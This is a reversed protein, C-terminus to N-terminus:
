EAREIEVASVKPNGARHVLNIELLGDMVAVAQEHKEPAAFGAALPEYGELFTMGEAIVDFRRSGRITHRVEAFHLTVRYSGPPLPLRYGPRGAEEPPFWRETRYLPADPRGQIEVPLSAPRGCTFFRDRSWAIGEPSEHDEGGSNIRIPEGARLRELLWRVDGACGEAEPRPLDALLEAPSRALEVFSIALWLDWAERAEVGGALAGRLREAAAAPEGAARLSEALRLLIPVCAADEALAAELKAAAERHRGARELLRGELYLTRLAADDGAAIARFDELAAADEAAGSDRDDLFLDICAVSPLDPLAARCATEMQRRLFGPADPLRLAEDLTRAALSAEGSELQSDALVSLIGADQRRSKEAALMSTELARATDRRGEGHLLTLALTALIRADDTGQELARELAGGLDRLAGGTGAPREERRLLSLLKRHAGAHRSWAVLADCYKRLAEDLRGAEELAAAMAYHSYRSAPNAALDKEFCAIAEDIRGEEQLLFGLSLHAETRSPDVELARLFVKRAEDRQGLRELSLGLINYPIADQPHLRIAELCEDRAEAYRGLHYFTNGLYRRALPFREDIALARRCMALADALKRAHMLFFACWSPVEPNRPQLAMEREFMEMAEAERGLELLAQGLHLHAWLLDPEAELAERCFAEADGPRGVDCLPWALISGVRVAGPLKALLREGAEVAEDFPPRCVLIAFRALERPEEAMVRDAWELAEDYRREPLHAGAIWLAAADKAASEAFVKEFAAAALDRRGKANYVQAKLLLPEAAGPWGEEVRVLEELALDLDRAMFYAMARELRWELVAGVYPEGGHVGELAEGLSAAAEQWRRGAFARRAAAASEAWAGSASRRSLELTRELVEPDGRRALVEARLVAAPVFRSSRRLALALAELAEEERGLDLLGRALHYCSDPRAPYAAALRSLEEVAGHVTHAGGALSMYPELLGFYETRWISAPDGAAPSQRAMWGLHLDLVAELVEERHLAEERRSAERRAHLVLLSSTMVLLLVTAAALLRRRQRWLRRRWREWSAQPRAEVPDGRASRRLDQALAEATSYRLAPEKELCKLVITELDRPIRQNFRRPPPPERGIIQSLTEHHDRGRFPPRLTLAEYLTAGLSYIDTRHDIAIKRARAQEPSMYLPTGIIDGSLTLSENGELRALGFDLIRLRGEADLILNSPKVDRHVVGERHAHHLGDAVGAFAGAVRACYVLDRESSGFPSEADTELSSGTGRKLSELVQALTRGDVYEMAYHPLDNEVGMGFVPVISPHHLRAAVKAERLFRALTRPDASVGGPLVKLAVQREVSEQWAEYVVGMGGRGIRRVLQYEGIKGLPADPAAESGLHQYVRLRELLEAALDPHRRTVEEEDVAEGAVLRDIYEGLASDISEDASQDARSSDTGNAPETAM